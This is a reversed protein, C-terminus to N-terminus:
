GVGRLSFQQDIRKPTTDVSDKELDELAHPIISQGHSRQIGPNEPRSRLNKRHGVRIQIGVRPM